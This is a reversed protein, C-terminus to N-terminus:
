YFADIPFIGCVELSGFSYLLKGVCLLLDYSIKNKFVDNVSKRKMMNNILYLVQIITIYRSRYITSM